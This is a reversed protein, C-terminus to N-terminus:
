YDGHEKEKYTLQKVEGTESNIYLIIKNKKKAYEVIEATGGVGNSPKGDWIAVIIDSNEVVHEGVNKYLMNRTDANQKIEKQDYTNNLEYCTYTADLLKKFEENSNDDEFTTKYIEKNFPLPVIIKTTKDKSKGKLDIFFKAVIRDAGEALPSYVTEIFYEEELKELQNEIIQTCIENINRHGTVGISMPMKLEYGAEALIYPIKHNILYDSGEFQWKIYGLKKLKVSSNKFEEYNNILCMHVKKLEHFKKQKTKETESILGIKRYGNLFHFTNWRSHENKALVYEDKLCSYFISENMNLLKLKNKENSKRYKIGLYKLKVKIHDAVARNSEKKFYSLKQWREEANFVTSKERPSYEFEYNESEKKAIPKVTEYVFNTAKAIKDRQENILYERDNIDIKQGFIFFNKFTHNNKKLTESLNDANFMAILIKAKLKDEAINDLYTINALNAAIDLNKQDNEFCLIVNTINDEWLEHKYFEKSNVDLPIYKFEINSVNEIETFNLEVSQQFELVNKDICYITLKNENPLQGMICAQFIVEYALNTNGVIVIAFSDSSHILEYGDGDIDYKEFLERSADEYYSFIKINSNKFIGNEKHFHRLSRDEIHLYIPKNKIDKNKLSLIQTAIELNVMDSGVSIIIQKSNDLNLYELVTSNTGDAIKIGVNKQKYEEIYLNDKNQEIVIINSISNKDNLESDIYTKNNDGLGFVIIHNGNKIIYNILNDNIWKELFLVIITSFSTLVGTFSFIYILEWNKLSEPTLGFDNPIKTDLAFLSFSFIFSSWLDLKYFCYYVLTAGAITIFALILVYYKKYM